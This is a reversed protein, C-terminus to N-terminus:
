PALLPLLRQELDQEEGDHWGGRSGRNKGTRDIIFLTPVKTPRWAESVNRGEDWAVPFRAGHTRAFEAVGDPEEDFSVGLIELGRAGHKNILEQLKPLAKKSPEHWTAFFFVVTVKGPTLKVRGATNLSALDLAPTDTTPELDPGSRSADKPLEAHAPKPPMTGGGCGITALFMAAGFFLTCLRALTM